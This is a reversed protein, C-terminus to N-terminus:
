GKPIGSMLVEGPVKLVAVVMARNGARMYGERLIRLVAILSDRVSQALGEHTQEEGAKRLMGNRTGVDGVDLDGM